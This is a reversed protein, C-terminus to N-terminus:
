VAVEGGRVSRAKSSKSCLVQGLWADATIDEPPPQTVQYIHHPRFCKKPMPQHSILKMLAPRLLNKHAVGHELM